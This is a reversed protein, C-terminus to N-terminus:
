SPVTGPPVTGPPVTGPPLRAGSSRLYLPGPPAAPPAAPDFRRAALAAVIAADPLAEPELSMEGHRAPLVAAVLLAGDGVVVLPGAPLEADGPAAAAAPGLPALDGDFGSDGDFCQLYVEGRRADLAAVVPRGARRGADVGHALVELTTVGLLPLGGALALGRAAALGVRLGTFTGPGVTTAILDLEGYAAGAEAMVEEVMPMLAEAHGRTMALHRRAALAGGRLLAASCAATATDLALINM